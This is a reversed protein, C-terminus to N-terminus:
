ETDKQSNQAAQKKQKKAIRSEVDIVQRGRYMGTESSARHKLHKVGREDVTIVPERIGHHSRRMDRKSRTVRMRSSM